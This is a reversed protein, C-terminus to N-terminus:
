LYEVFGQEKLVKLFEGSFFINDAKSYRVDTFVQALLKLTFRLWGSRLALEFLPIRNLHESELLMSNQKILGRSSFNLHLDARNAHLHINSLENGNFSWLRLLRSTSLDIKFLRKVDGCFDRQPILAGFFCDSDELLKDVFCDQPVSRKNSDDMTFALSDKTM